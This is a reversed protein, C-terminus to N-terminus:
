TVYNVPYQGTVPRLLSSQVLLKDFSLYERKAIRATYRDPLPPYSSVSLKKLKARMSTSVEAKRRKHHRHHHRHCKKRPSPQESSDSTTTSSSTSTDSSSSSSQFRKKDYHKRKRSSKSRSHHAHLHALRRWPSFRGSLEEDASSSRRRASRSRFRAHQDYTSVIRVVHIKVALIPATPTM